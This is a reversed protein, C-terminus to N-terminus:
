NKHVLMFVKKCSTDLGLKLNLNNIRSKMLEIKENVSLDKMSEEEEYELFIGLNKVVQITFCIDDKKYVYSGNEVICYNNLGSLKFIKITNEIDTINAKFKEEKVVDGNSNLQKSKYCLFQKIQDSDVKRIFFSNNILTLYDVDKVNSLKTFYWDTLKYYEIMNFGLNKLTLDIKEFNEFVQVTIETQKM